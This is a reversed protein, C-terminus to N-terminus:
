VHGCISAWYHGIVRRMGVDSLRHVAQRSGQVHELGQVFLVLEGGDVGVIDLNSFRKYGNVLVLIVTLVPM